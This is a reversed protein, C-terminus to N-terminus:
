LAALLCNIQKNIQQGQEDNVQVDSVHYMGDFRIAKIQKEAFEKIGGKPKNLFGGYSIFYKGDLNYTAAGAIKKKTGDTFLIVLTSGADVSVISKDAFKLVIGKGDTYAYFYATSTLDISEKSSYSTKNTFEDVKKEICNCTTDQAYLWGPLLLILFFKM